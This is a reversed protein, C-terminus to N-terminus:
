LWALIYKSIDRSLFQRLVWYNFELQRRRCWCSHGYDFNLLKTDKIDAIDKINKVDKINKSLFPKDQCACRVEFQHSNYLWLHPNSLPNVQFGTISFNAPTITGIETHIQNQYLWIIRNDWVDMSITTIDADDEFYHNPYYFNTELDICLIAPRNWGTSVTSYYCLLYVENDLVRLISVGVSDYDLEITRYEPLIVVSNGVALYFKLGHECYADPTYELVWSREKKEERREGNWTVKNEEVKWLKPNIRKFKLIM